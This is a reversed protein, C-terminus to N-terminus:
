ARTVKGGCFTGSSWSGSFLFTPPCYGININKSCYIFFLFFMFYFVRTYVKPEVCVDIHM